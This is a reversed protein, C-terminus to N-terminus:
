LVQCLASVNVIPLYQLVVSLSYGNLYLPAYTYDGYFSAWETNLYQQINANNNLMVTWDVSYHATSGIFMIITALWMALHAKVLIGKSRSHSICLM